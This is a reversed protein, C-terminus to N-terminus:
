FFRLRSRNSSSYAWIKKFFKTSSVLTVGEMAKIGASKALAEDKTKDLVTQYTSDYATGKAATLSEATPTKGMLFEKGQQFIGPGTTDTAMPPGQMPKFRDM